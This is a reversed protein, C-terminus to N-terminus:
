PVASGQYLYADVKEGGSNNRDSELQGHLKQYNRGCGQDGGGIRIGVGIHVNRSFYDGYGDLGISREGV